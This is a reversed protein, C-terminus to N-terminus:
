RTHLETTATCLRNGAETRMWGAIRNSHCGDVQLLKEDAHFWSLAPRKLRLRVSGQCSGTM